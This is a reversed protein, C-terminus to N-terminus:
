GTGNLSRPFFACAQSSVTYMSSSRRIEMPFRPDTNRRTGSATYCEVLQMHNWRQWKRFRSAPSGCRSRNSAIATCPGLLFHHPQQIQQGSWPNHVNM